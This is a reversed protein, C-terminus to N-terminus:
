LPFVVSFHIQNQVKTHFLLLSQYSFSPVIPELPIIIIIILILHYINFDQLVSTKFNSKEQFKPYRSLFLM